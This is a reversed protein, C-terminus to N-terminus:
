SKHDRSVRKDRGVIDGQASAGSQDVMSGRGSVRKDRTLHLAILSGGIGGGVIGALFSLLESFHDVIFQPLIVGVNPITVM